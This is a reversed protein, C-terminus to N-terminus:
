SQVVASCGQHCALGQRFSVCCLVHRGWVFVVAGLWWFPSHSLLTNLFILAHLVKPFRDGFHCICRYHQLLLNEILRSVKNGSIFCNGLLWWSCLVSLTRSTKGDQYMSSSSVYQTPFLGELSSNPYMKSYELFKCLGDKCQGCLRSLAMKSLGTAPARRM